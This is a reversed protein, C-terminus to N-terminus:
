ATSNPKATKSDACLPFVKAFIKPAAFCADIFGHTVCASIPVQATTISFKGSARWQKPSIVSIGSSTPFMFRSTRIRAPRTSAPQRPIAANFHRIQNLGSINTKKLGRACEGRLAACWQGSVRLKPNASLHQIGHSPIPVRPTYRRGRLARRRFVARVHFARNGRGGFKRRVTQKRLGLAGRYEALFHRAQRKSVSDHNPQAIGAFEAQALNARNQTYALAARTLKM